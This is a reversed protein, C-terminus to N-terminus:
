VIFAVFEFGCCGDVHTVDQALFVTLFFFRQLFYSIPRLEILNRPLHALVLRPLTREENGKGVESLFKKM